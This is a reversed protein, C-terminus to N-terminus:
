TRRLSADELKMAPEWLTPVATRDGIQKAPGRMAFFRRLCSSDMAEIVEIHVGRSVLCTFMVAWRKSHAQGGRTRRASVLWPGLVDVGVFTFPPASTLREKPLDGMLQTELKGRLRKCIVCCHIIKSLIYRKGGIVWYGENQLTRLTFLRGQHKCLQHCHQIILETVHHNKRLLVPHMEKESVHANCVRGGVRLIGDKDLNPNLKGFTCGKLVDGNVLSVIEERFAENQTSTLIVNKAKQFEELSRPQQCIHWGNCNAANRETIKSRSHIIHILNAFARMLRNWSSFKSFRESGLCAGYVVPKRCTVTPRVEPDDKIEHNTLECPAYPLSPKPKRLFEPGTIWPSEQLEKVKVSRTAKDAPNLETRVYRWQEQSTTRHIRSVEEVEAALVARCLELWPITTAAKPALKAKGMVFSIHIQCSGDTTRLYTVAGIAKDSADSFTHLERRISQKAPFPTYSSQIQVSSLSKLFREMEAM